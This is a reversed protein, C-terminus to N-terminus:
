MGAHTSSRMALNTGLRLGVTLSQSFFLGTKTLIKKLKLAFVMHKEVGESGKEDKM